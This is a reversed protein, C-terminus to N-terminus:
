EPSRAATRWQEVTEIHLWPTRLCERGPHGRETFHGLITDLLGRLQQAEEITKSAVLWPVRDFEHRHIAESVFEDLPGVGALVARVLNAKRHREVEARLEAIVEHNDAPAM